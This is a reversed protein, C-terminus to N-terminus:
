GPQLTEGLNGQISHQNLSSHLVEIVLEWLHLAPIGDMRVLQVTLPQLNNRVCGIEPFSHEVKSSVCSEVRPQNRIKLTGLLTQTKSCVWDVTSHQTEWMAINDPGNQSLEHWNTQLGFHTRLRIPWAALCEVGALPPM